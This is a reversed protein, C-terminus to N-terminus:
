KTYNHELNVKCKVYLPKTAALFKMSFDGDKQTHMCAYTGKHTHTHTHARTYTHTTIM